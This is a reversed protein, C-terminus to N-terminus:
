EVWVVRGSKAVDYGGLNTIAERAEDTTLWQALSQVGPLEWVPETMVLDYPEMTLLIFDLGYALAAAQVGIGVDARREAVAGAVQLHTNAIHDTERVRAADLGTQQLQTDLWLHTGAGAQRNIFRVDPRQLDSIAEIQLPNGPLVIFGLCRHAVTLLAARQGPLMRRVFPVNYTDTEADWLHCGAIDAGERALAILGGMSGVFTVNLEYGPALDPYRGGILSIIPDHSGVFRLLKRPPSGPQTMRAQWHALVETTADEVEDPTYGAAMMELLFAKVRNVLTSQRLTTQTNMRAAVRTGQGVKTTILGQLALERYARQVTGPACRWKEAMRRVSPLRDGEVLAGNMMNQRIEAVIEKFIAM